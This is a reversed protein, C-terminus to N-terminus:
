KNNGDAASTPYRVDVSITPTTITGKWFDPIDYPRTWNGEGGRAFTLLNNPEYSVKVSYQGQPIKQWIDKVEKVKLEIQSQAGPELQVPGERVPAPIPGPWEIPNSSAPSSISVHWVDHDRSWFITKDSFNKLYVKVATENWSGGANSSMREGTSVKERITLPGTWDKVPTFILPSSPTEIGLSLGNQAPGWCIVLSKEPSPSEKVTRSTCSILVTSVLILLIFCVFRNKNKQKM